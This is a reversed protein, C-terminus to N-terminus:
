PQRTGGPRWGAGEKLSLPYSVNILSTLPSLKAEILMEAQLDFTGFETQAKDTASSSSDMQRVGPRRYTLYNLSKLYYIPRCCCAFAPPKKRGGGGDHFRQIAACNAGEEEAARTGQNWERGRLPPPPLGQHRRVYFALDGFFLLRSLLKSDAQPSESEWKRYASSLAILLSSDGARWLSTPKAPLRKSESVPRWIRAWFTGAFLGRFSGGSRSFVAARRRASSHISPMAADLGPRGVRLRPSFPSKGVSTDWPVLLPRGGCGFLHAAVGNADGPNM